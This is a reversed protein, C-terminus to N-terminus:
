EWKASTHLRMGLWNSRVGRRIPLTSKIPITCKGRGRDDRSCYYKDFLRVCPILTLTILSSHRTRQTDIVRVNEIFKNEIQMYLINIRNRKEPQPQQLYLSMDGNSFWWQEIANRNNSCGSQLIKLFKLLSVELHTYGIIIHMRWHWHRFKYRRIIAQTIPIYTLAYDSTNQGSVHGSVIFNQCLELFDSWYEIIRILCM